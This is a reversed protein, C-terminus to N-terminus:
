RPEEVSEAALVLVERTIHRDALIEGLAPRVIEARAEEGGRVLPGPQSMRPELRLLGPDREDAIAGGSTVELAELQVQDGPHIAALGLPTPRVILQLSPDGRELEGKAQLRFRRRHLLEPLLRSGGPLQVPEVVGGRGIEARLAQQRAPERLAA